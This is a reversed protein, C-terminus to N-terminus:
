SRWNLEVRLGGLNSRGLIMTAGTQASLEHAISLGLGAGGSEDYRIGRQLAASIQDDAIGPGDDEITLRLPGGSIRVHRQAFRAANELLPGAIEYLLSETLGNVPGDALQNEFTIAEGHQTRELVCILKDIVVRANAPGGTDSAARARALERDVAESAAGLAREIGDAADHAGSARAKRAQALIAALPTKLSHALDGARRRARDLDAERAEALANIAAALPLVESAFGTTDMRASARGQMHSLASEIRGLPKLGLWVQVWAALALVAWLLFLFLSLERAFDRRLGTVVAHDQALLIEVPVGTQSPRITRGAWVIKQGFPGEGEGDTWANATLAEDAALTEDWLSRSQLTHSPTSARWYLGSAPTEFRADGPEFDLTIEGDAGVQVASAMDSGHRILTRATDRELHQEFLLGLVFWSIALAVAIALVGGLLLRTLLSNM